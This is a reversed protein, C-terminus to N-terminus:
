EAPTRHMLMRGRTNRKCSISRDAAPLLPWAPLPPSPVLVHKSYRQVRCPFRRILLSSADHEPRLWSRHTMPEAPERAAAINRATLKEVLYKMGSDRHDSTRRLDWCKPSVAGGGVLVLSIKQHWNLMLCSWSALRGGGGRRGEGGGRVEPIDKELLEKRHLLLGREEHVRPCRCLDQVCGPHGRLALVIDSKAFAGYTDPKGDSGVVAENNPDMDVYTLNRSCCM